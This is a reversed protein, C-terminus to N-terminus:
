PLLPRVSRELLLSGSTGAIRGSRGARGDMRGAGREREYGGGERSPPLSRSPGHGFVQANYGHWATEDDDFGIDVTNWMAGGGGRAEGGDRAPPGGASRARGHGALHGSSLSGGGPGSDGEVERERERRDPRRGKPQLGRAERGRVGDGGSGGGGCVEEGGTM